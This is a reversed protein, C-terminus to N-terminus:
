SRAWLTDIRRLVTVRRKGDEERARVQELDEKPLHELLTVIDAATRQDYDAIPFDAIPTGPAVEDLGDPTLDIGFLEVIVQGIDNVIRDAITEATASGQRAATRALFRGITVQSRGREVYRDWNERAELALGVPAYVFTEILQNM